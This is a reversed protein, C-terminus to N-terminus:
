GDGDRTYGANASVVQDVKRPRHQGIRGKVRGREIRGKSKGKIASRAEVVKDGEREGGGLKNRKWPILTISNVPSRISFISSPNSFTELISNSYTNRRKTRRTERVTYLRYTLKEPHPHTHTTNFYSHYLFIM